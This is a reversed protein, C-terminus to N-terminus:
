RTSSSRSTRRPWTVSPTWLALLAPVPGFRVRDTQLLVGILGLVIMPQGITLRSAIVGGSFAFFASFVLTWRVRDRLARLRAVGSPVGVPRGRQPAPYPRVAGIPPRIRRGAYQAPMSM